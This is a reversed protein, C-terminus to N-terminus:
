LMDAVAKTPSGNRLYTAQNHRLGFSAYGIISIVLVSRTYYLKLKHKISMSEHDAIRYQNKSM